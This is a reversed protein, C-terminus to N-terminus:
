EYIWTLTSCLAIYTVGIIAKLKKVNHDVLHWRSLLDACKNDKGRVHVLKLNIDRLTTELWVNHGLMALANDKTVGTMIVSM